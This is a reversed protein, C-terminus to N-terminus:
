LEIPGPGLSIKEGGSVEIQGRGSLTIVYQRRPGRHWDSFTGAPTRRFQVGTAKMMESTGVGVGLGVAMLWWPRSASFGLAAASLGLFGVVVTVEDTLRFGVGVITAGVLVAAALLPWKM